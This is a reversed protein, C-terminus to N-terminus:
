PLYDERLSILVRLASRGLDIVELLEENEEMRTKVAAPVWNEVLYAISQLWRHSRARTAADREGLTFIEEFQDLILVPTLPKGTADTLRTDTRHFWEWLGEGEAALPLR